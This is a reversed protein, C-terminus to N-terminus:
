PPPAPEWWSHQIVCIWMYWDLSEAAGASNFTFVQIQNKNTNDSAGASIEGSATSLHPICAIEGIDWDDNWPVEQDLTVTYEGPADETVSVINPSRAIIDANNGAAVFAKAGQNFFMPPWALRPVKLVM